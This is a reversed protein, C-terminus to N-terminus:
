VQFEVVFEIGSCDPVHSLNFLNSSATTSNYVHVSRIPVVRM